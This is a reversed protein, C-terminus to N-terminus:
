LLILVSNNLPVSDKVSRGVSNVVPSSTSEDVLWRTSIHVSSDISVWVSDWVSDRVIRRVSYLLSFHVSEGISKGLDM